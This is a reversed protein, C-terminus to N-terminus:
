NGQGPQYSIGPNQKTEKKIFKNDFGYGELFLKIKPMNQFKSPSYAKGLLPATDSHKEFPTLGYFGGIYRGTGNKM